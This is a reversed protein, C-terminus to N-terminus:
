LLYMIAIAGGALGMNKLFQTMEVMKMNEDEVTWFNHMFFAAGLLFAVVLWGAIKTQYDFVLGLLGVILVLGSVVVSFQPAPLKKSEAYGVMAKMNMFHNMGMMALPLAFIIRGALEM